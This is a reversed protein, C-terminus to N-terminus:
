VDITNIEQRLKRANDAAKELDEVLGYRFGAKMFVPMNSYLNDKM